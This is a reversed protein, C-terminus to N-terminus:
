QEEFKEDLQSQAFMAFERMISKISMEATENTREELEKQQKTENDLIKEADPNFWNDLKKLANVVKSHKEKTKRKKIESQETM